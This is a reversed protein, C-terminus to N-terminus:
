NKLKLKMLFKERSINIFVKGENSELYEIDSINVFLTKDEAKVKVKSIHSDNDAPSDDETEVEQLGYKTLRM